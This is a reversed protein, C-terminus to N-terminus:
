GPKVFKAKKGHAAKKVAPAATPTRSSAARRASASRRRFRVKRIPPSISAAPDYWAENRGGTSGRDDNQVVESLKKPSRRPKIVAAMPTAQSHSCRGVAPRHLGRWTSPREDRNM